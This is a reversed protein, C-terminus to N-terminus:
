DDEIDLLELLIDVDELYRLVESHGKLQWLREATSAGNLNKRCDFHELIADRYWVLVPDERLAHRVETKTITTKVM